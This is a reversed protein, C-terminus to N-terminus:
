DPADEQVASEAAPDRETWGEVLPEQNRCLRTTGDASM